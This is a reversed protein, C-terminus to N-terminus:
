NTVETTEAGCQNTSMLSYHFNDTETQIGLGLADITPTFTKNEQFYSQQARNM